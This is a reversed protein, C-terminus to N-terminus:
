QKGVEKKLKKIEKNLEKERKEVETFIHSFLISLESAVEKDAIKSCITDLRNKLLTYKDM